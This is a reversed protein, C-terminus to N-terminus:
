RRNIGIGNFYNKKYKRNNNKHGNKKFQKMRRLNLESVKKSRRSVDMETAGLKRRICTKNLDTEYMM